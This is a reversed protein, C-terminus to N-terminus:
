DDYHIWQYYAKSTGMYKYSVDLQENSHCTIKANSGGQTVIVAHANFSSCSGSHYVLVDGAKIYSPPPLLYDCTSIWGKEVLCDGLRKAGVEEWGCPYGRCNDSGSLDQHGGGLVLCQSVFNACDGGNESSYGCHEDGWYSAPTCSDFQGCRHNINHVHERAYAIAGDRNYGIDGGSKGEVYAVAYIRDKIMIADIKRGLIGAMGYVDDNINYQNVESLWSGGLLHVKYTTGKIAVGDIPKGDIGAYGNNPDSIDNGTVAPLWSGGLVHVRYELNGSVRLSSIEKGMIGAYDSYGEVEPLWIQSSQSVVFINLLITLLLYKNM